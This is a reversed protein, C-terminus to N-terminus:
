PAIRRVRMPTVVECPFVKEDMEINELLIGPTCNEEHLTVASAEDTRLYVVREDIASEKGRARQIDRGLHLQEGLGLRDAAHRWAELPTAGEGIGTKFPQPTKNLARGSRVVWRASQDEGVVIECWANPHVTRVRATLNELESEIM